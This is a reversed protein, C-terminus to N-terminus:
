ESRVRSRITRREKYDELAEFSRFIQLFLGTRGRIKCIRPVFGIAHLEFALEKLYYPELERSEYRRALHSPCRIEVYTRDPNSVFIALHKKVHGIQKAVELRVEYWKIAALEAAREKQRATEHEAAAYVYELSMLPANLEM